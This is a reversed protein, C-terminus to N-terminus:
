LSNSVLAQDPIFQTHLYVRPLQNVMTQAYCLLKFSYM